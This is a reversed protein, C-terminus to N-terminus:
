TGAPRPPSECRRGATAAALEEAFRTTARNKTKIWGREGPRYPDRLRKGVVGELGREGVVRFLAEGDEFTAVLRTHTGEVELTELLERRERYPQMTTPRGEAALVDFVFYTLAIGERGHLLRSGLRHFDPLGEANLAVIEGDLQVNAPLTEALEPLLETMNWGRRSRARFRSGHTRTLCRLGDLKPEFLWGRGTPIAASRALMPEPLRLV